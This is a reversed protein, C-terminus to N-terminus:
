QKKKLLTVHYIFDNDYRGSDKKRRNNDYRGIWVTDVKELLKSPLVEGVRQHTLIALPLSAEVEKEDQINLPRIKRHAEYVVEIRLEEGKVHYFPVEKLEKIERTASLSNLDPNNFLSGIFPMIIIEAVLFLVVVSGLFISPKTKIAAYFMFCAIFVFIISLAIFWGLNIAGNTYLFLYILVPLSLCIIAIPYSNIRFIIKDSENARRQKFINWWYEFMFGVTYAAPILVPLLYRNKKEPLCSLLIVLLIMWSLTFYYEKKMRLRNSWYPIAFSTLVALAWVGTELFFTSYYHWSRVNRNIWSASEKHLVYAAEDPYFLFLAIYWWLSIVLCLLIMGLLGGWKRKMSPRYIFIFSILFPLLLAYFSVPGKGLFSLGLFFGAALFYKWNSKRGMFAKYIYYIAWVMFAHCYIDWSATRGMLIINYSTCLILSSIFAYKDNRTFERGLAYFGFVLLVAALGAMARQMSINDPSLIEAGAAIWTPLPPKELRLEGNMTPIMWNQDYVMERATVINRSEMIDTLIVQNNVFFTILCVITLIILQKANQNLIRM